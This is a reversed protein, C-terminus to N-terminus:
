GRRKKAALPLRLWGPGASPVQLVPPRNGMIKVNDSGSSIVADPPGRMGLTDLLGDVADSAKNGLKEPYGSAMAGLMAAAGVAIGAVPNIAFLMGAGVIIGTYIAGEVLGSVLDALASSHVLPDDLRAAIPESMM